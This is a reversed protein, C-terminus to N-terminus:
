RMHACSTLGDESDPSGKHMLEPKGPTKWAGPAKGHRVGYPCVKEYQSTWQPNFCYQNVVKWTGTAPNVGIWCHPPYGKSCFSFVDQDFPLNGDFFAGGTDRSEAVGGCSSSAFAWPSALVLWVAPLVGRMSM